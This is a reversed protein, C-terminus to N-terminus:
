RHTGGPIGRTYIFICKICVWTGDPLPLFQKHVSDKLLVVTANHCNWSFIDDKPRDPKRKRVSGKAHTPLSSNLSPLCSNMYM